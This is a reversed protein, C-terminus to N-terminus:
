APGALIMGAVSGLALYPGYSFESRRGQTALVVAAAIGGSIVTILATAVLADPGLWGAVVGIPFSLKVDGMGLGGMVHVGLLVAAMAAGTLCAAVTQGLDAQAAGAITTAVITGVALPAVIRNPLRQTRLDMEALVGLTLVMAVLAAALFPQSRHVVAVAAASGVTAIGLISRVIMGVLDLSADVNKGASYKEEVM